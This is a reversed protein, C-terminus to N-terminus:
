TPDSHHGIKSLGVMRTVLGQKKDIVENEVFAVKQKQKEVPPLPKRSIEELLGPPVNKGVYSVVRQRVVHGCRKNEVLYYYDHGAIHKVRIFM